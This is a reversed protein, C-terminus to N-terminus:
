ARVVGGVDARRFRRLKRRVAVPLADNTKPADDRLKVRTGSAMEVESFQALPNVTTPSTTQEALWLAMECEAEKWCRDITSGSRVEPLAYSANCDDYGEYRPQSLRQTTTVRDGALTREEDELRNAAAVLLM